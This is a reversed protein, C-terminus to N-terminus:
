EQEARREAQRRLAEQMRAKQADDAIRNFERLKKGSLRTQPTQATKIYYAQLGSPIDLETMRQRAGAIDGRRIQRRIDPLAEQVRFDHEDKVAYYEGMAPGGPAGKRVTIGTLPLFAALAAARPEPTGQSLDALAQLQNSPAIGQIAFWAVRGMNKIWGEPNHAHDGEDYLKRGFGKDNAAVAYAVRGYPSLKALMIERPDKLYRMYEEGVKGTPLRGYIATGDNQYGILFRDELGQENEEPAQYDRQLLWATFLAALVLGVHALAVDLVLLGLGKRRTLGQVKDLMEPSADRLIQARVDSPLGSVFDKAAGLNGLTFSRSFMVLNAVERALKSMAEIPLSGGYRNAFHAATRQASLPDVGKAVLEDRIKVYLGMQLDGVRDWLFKNHWVDGAVDVARKVADGAKPDFLGPIYALVQATWSQGPAADIGETMTTLDQDFYKRGVLAVGAQLAEKMTQADRKAANGRKYALLSMVGVPDAPIAKGWIVANHILPNYMIVGMMKNKLELFARMIPGSRGQLVAKLPGEFERSVWVPYADFIVDGNQDKVPEHKGTAENTVFRPRWTTLASEGPLTFFQEPDPNGEETVLTTQAEASMAKIKDVLIRGAIARELRQTALGLTRINRVVFAGEGFAARAAAETEEVTEYKRQRLQGTTVSLAGGRLRQKRNLSRVPRPGSATMEAVMRPVYSELGDGRVMGLRQATAFANDARAQLNEVVARQEPTLRNKGQGPGPEEGRRLMVGHEDPAEWMLRQEEPTFSKKLHEDVRGWQFQSTRLSNIYDKAEAQGRASGVTMPSVGMQIARWMDQVPDPVYRIAAAQIRKGVGNTVPGLLTTFQADVRKLLSRHAEIQAEARKAPLQRRQFALREPQVLEGQPSIYVAGEPENRVIMESQGARDSAWVVADLPVEAAIITARAQANRQNHERRDENLSELYDRVSETDTIHEGREYIDITEVEFPEGTDLRSGTVTAKKLVRIPTVQVEGDRELKETFRQIQEETFLGLDKRLGALHQAFDRDTTWSLVSRSGDPAASMNIVDARRPPIPLQVRYLKVTDGLKRRLAERVPAFATEVATRIEQGKPSPSPGFADELPRANMLGFTAGEDVAKPEHGIFRTIALAADDTLNEDATETLDRIEADKFTGVDKASMFAPETRGRVTKFVRRGVEGREIRSLVDRYDPRKGITRRVLDRVHDLAKLVRAFAEGIFGPLTEGGRRWDAFREAVAEEIAAPGAAGKDGSWRQVIQYRGLWDENIAAESLAQWEEPRIVGAARLAHISEHRGTMVADPSALSWMVIQRVGDRYAAGYVEVPEGEFTGLIFDAANPETHPALRALEREVEDIVARAAADPSAARFFEIGKPVRFSLGANPQQIGPRAGPAQPRNFLPFGGTAAEALKPTIDFGHQDSFGKQQGRGTAEIRRLTDERLQDVNAWFHQRQEGEMDPPPQANNLDELYRRLRRLENRYENESIEGTRVGGKDVKGGHKKILDNTINVLNRDYFARMGEDGIKVDLGELHRERVRWGGGGPASRGESALLRETLDKGLVEQLERRTGEEGGAGRIFREMVQRGDPDHIILTGDGLPAKLDPEGIGRASADQWTIRGVHKTLNYREGQQEGTTWAVRDFGNDVAWRIMRKMVLAPWSTKFPADPIGSPNMARFLEQHTENVRLQLRSVEARAERLPRLREEVDPLASGRWFESVRDIIGLQREINAERRLGALAMMLREEKTGEEWAAAREQEAAQQALYLRDPDGVGAMSATKAATLATEANRKRRQIRDIEEQAATKFDEIYPIAVEDRAARAVDWTNRAVQEAVPDPKQAYGQDRGKQHWDSQVEEVFLVKRGDPDTRETFRAHAMVGPTDWHTAPPNAEKPLTFLLERYNEGGPLKWDMFEVPAPLVGEDILERTAEDEFDDRDFKSEYRDRVAEEDDDPNRDMHDDVAQAVQAEAMKDARDWILNLQERSFGETNDRLEKEEVKVGNDRLFAQIADKPVKDGEYLDLWDPLGTWELEEKKIGTANAITAKWQAAPAAKMPSNAVHRELASYFVAQRQFRAEEMTQFGFDRDAQSRTIFRGRQDTFGYILREGAPAKAAADTHSSGQYVKGDPARVAARIGELFRQRELLREYDAGTVFRQFSPQTVPPRGREGLLLRDARRLAAPDYPRARPSPSGLPVDDEGPLNLVEDLRQDLRARQQPTGGARRDEINGARRADPSIRMRAEADGAALAAGLGALFGRRSMAAQFSPDAARERALELVPDLRASLHEERVGYERGIAKAREIIAVRETDPKIALREGWLRVAPPSLGLPSPLLPQGISAEIEDYAAPGIGQRQFRPDLVAADVFVDAGRRVLSIRGAREGGVTIEYADRQASAPVAKVEAPPARRQFSPAEPEAAPTLARVFADRQAESKFQFGPIAGKGRFSSYYGGHKKAAANLAKYDEPSVRNEATAVYLADGTKGHLTQALKFGGWSPALDAEGFTVDGAGRLTPAPSAEVVPAAKVRAPLQAHEIRDFFQGIDDVGSYDRAVEEIQAAAARDTQKELVVIHARVSTGAREFTSPPLDIDAVKHVGQSADDEYLVRNLKEDTAGRPLLAVIRGGDKLHGIAKKLHAIATAGAHGFPPNMVIADFKNVAHLDEFRENEVRAGPSTLEARSALEASPEVLVRDATEPFFRAIAGHGASPELVRDGPRIDAWEVMKFGLPEPTAFYDVGERNARGKQKKGQAFYFSKAKQFATLAKALNFDAAKGGVGEGKAPLRPASELFANIFSERLTRSQEGLALNEATGAREAITQAFARREWATGTNMYRFIADSAQGIRYIRGEQQIAATPRGPLGLNILARQHKGSVDHLSIGAQGAESQVIILNAKSGDENFAQKAAERKGKPVRGNYLLADPFAATLQEIPSGLGGLEENLKTVYPNEAVFDGWLALVEGPKTGSGYKEMTPEYGFPAFGGGDIYNHFVVVKRGLRHHAKIREIAHKAKMAELLRQHALYDFRGEFGQVLPRYKERNAESRMWAFAEDIKSGAADDILDFARDYDKDVNLVRGSLAGERRLWEHFQREMAESEVASDPKTLKNYRMRYGFHRIFFQDKASGSNYGGSTPEPGYDFLYGAAYDISKDYAFPTASLFVVKARPAAKLEAVRAALKDRLPRWKEQWADFRPGWASKGMAKLEANMQAVQEANELRARHDLRDPHNTIARFNQLGVGESGQADSSLTHAEDAVVLDWDRKALTPNASLNAYTTAVPGKGHTATNELLGIRVGLTDMTSVWQNLIGQSPAVILINDKGADHFRKVIGGGTFTKGTGTGNTFLVGHGKPETFRQEAFAVDARQEPFLTPLARELEDPVSPADVSQAYPHANAAVPELHASDDAVRVFDAAPARDPQIGEDRAVDSGGPEGRQAPQGRDGPSGEFLGGAGGEGLAAAGDRPLGDGGPLRDGQGADGAGPGGPGREAPGPEAPVPEAGAADAAGAGPRDPELDPRSRLVDDVIRQVNEPTLVEGPSMGEAEFGPYDRVANYWMKLFPAAREGLDGLMAAAFDAFKRAGAEVHYGALELGDLMMEPDIGANLQDRLRKRLRERAADARERTFLKNSDGYGKGKPAQAERAEPTMGTQPKPEPEPARPAGFLDEQARADLDFLGGIDERQAVRPKLGGERAKAARSATPALDGLINQEVTEGALKVRETKPETDGKIKRNLRQLWENATVVEFRDKRVADATAREFTEMVPEGTERDIVVWSGSIRDLDPARGAAAESATLAELQGEDLLHPADESDSGPGERPQRDAPAEGREVLAADAAEQSGFAEGELDGAGRTAAYLWDHEESTLEADLREEYYDLMGDDVFGEDAAIIAERELVDALVEDTPAGDRVEVGLVEARDILERGAPLEARVQEGRWRALKAAATPLDDKAGVGALTMQENIDTWGQRAARHEDGPHLDREGAMRRRLLEAFQDVDAGADEQPGFWGRDRLYERAAEPTLGTKNNILGPMAGTGRKRSGPATGKDADLLDAVDYPKGTLPDVTRLGGKAHLEKLLDPSKPAGQKWTEADALAQPMQELPAGEAMRATEIDEPLVAMAKTPVRHARGPTTIIPTGDEDLGAMIGRRKVGNEDPFIVAAGEPPAPPDPTPGDQAAMADQFAQEREPTWTTPDDTARTPEPAAPSVPPEGMYARIADTEPLPEIPARMPPPAPAEAAGPQVGEQAVAAEEAGQAAGERARRRREGWRQALAGGGELPVRLGASAVAGMAAAEPLQEYWKRQPDYNQAALVNSGVQMAVNQGTDGAIEALVRPVVRKAGVGAAVMEGGPIMGIGGQMLGEEFGARTAEEESAGKALAAEEGQEYGQGAFAMAGAPLSVISTALPATFEGAGHLVSEVKGRDKPGIREGAREVAGGVRETTPELAKERRAVAAKRDAIQAPTLPVGGPTAGIGMSVGYEAEMAMQRRTAEDMFKGAGQVAKGAGEVVGSLFSRTKRWDDGSVKDDKARFPEPALDEAVDAKARFTPPPRDQGGSQLAAMGIHLHAGQTGAKGEPLLDAYGYGAKRLRAAAQAPTMGTVVVDRGGPAHEEGLSHASFGGPGVTQAGQRRLENERAQSRWGGSQRWNGRGFTADMMAGFEDNTLYGASEPQDDDGRFAM